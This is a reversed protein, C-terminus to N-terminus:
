TITYPNGISIKVLVNRPLFYCEKSWYIFHLKLTQKGSTKKKPIDDTQNDVFNTVPQKYVKAFLYIFLYQWNFNIKRFIRRFLTGSAHAALVVNEWIIM